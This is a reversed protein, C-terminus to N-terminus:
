QLHIQCVCANLEGLLINVAENANEKWRLGLYQGIHALLTEVVSEMKEM